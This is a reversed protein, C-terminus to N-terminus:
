EGSFWLVVGKGGGGGGMKCTLSRLLISFCEAWNRCSVLGFGAAHSSYFQFSTCVFLLQIKLYLHWHNQQWIICIVPKIKQRECLERLIATIFM